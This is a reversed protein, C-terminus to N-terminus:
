EDEEDIIEEPEIDFVDQESEQEFQREVIVGAVKEIEVYVQEAGEEVAKDIQQNIEKLTVEVTSEENLGFKVVFDWFPIDRGTPMDREKKVFKKIEHRVSDALRAPKIKPHVLSFTRKM